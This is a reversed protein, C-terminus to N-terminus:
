QAQATLSFTGLPDGVVFNSSPPPEPAPQNFVSNLTSAASAQLRAEAGKISITRSAPDATLSKAPLVLDAIATRGAAGPFPPKPLIELEVTATKAGFDVIVATLKMTPSLSDTQKAIQVGGASSITGTSADPALNGGSIPLDFTAAGSETAPAIATIDQQKVGKESLKKLTAADVKLRAAGQPLVTVTEPQATAYANSLVRGPNLRKSGRLGLRNSIRQAAKATLSLKVSKLNAGFGERATTPAALTGLEMHAKAIKAYVIGRVTNVTLQTVPVGREGLQFKFGGRTELHGQADTPDFMGDRVALGIKTGTVTGAGVPQVTAGLNALKHQFGQKLHLDATGGAIPDRAASATSAFALFAAAVAAALLPLRPLSRAKGTDNM